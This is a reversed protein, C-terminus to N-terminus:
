TSTLNPSVHSLNHIYEAQDEHTGMHIQTFKGLTACCRPDLLYYLSAKVCKWPRTMHSFYLSYLVPTINLHDYHSTHASVLGILSSCSLSTVSRERDDVGNASSETYDRHDCPDIPQSYIRGVAM